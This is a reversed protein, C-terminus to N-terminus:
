ARDSIHTFFHIISDSEALFPDFEHGKKGQVQIINGEDTLEGPAVTDCSFHSVQGIESGELQPEGASTTLGNPIM